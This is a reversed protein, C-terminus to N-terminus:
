QPRGAKILCVPDTEDNESHVFKTLCQKTNLPQAKSSQCSEQRVCNVSPDSASSTCAAARQFNWLKNHVFAFALLDCSRSGTRGLANVFAEVECQLSIEVPLSM